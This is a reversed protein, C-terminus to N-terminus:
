MCFLVDYLTICYVVIYYLIIHKYTFRMHEIIITPPRAWAGHGHHVVALGQRGVAAARRPWHGNLGQLLQAARPELRPADEYHLMFHYLVIYYSIIYYLM